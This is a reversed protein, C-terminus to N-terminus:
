WGIGWLGDESVESVVMLGDKLVGILVGELVDESVRGGKKERRCDVLLRRDGVLEVGLEVGVVVVAMAMVIVM